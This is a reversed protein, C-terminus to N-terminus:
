DIGQFTQFTECVMVHYLDSIEKLPVMISQLSTHPLLKHIELSLLKRVLIETQTKNKLNNVSQKGHIKKM